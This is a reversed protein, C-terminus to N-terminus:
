LINPRNLILPTPPPNIHPPLVSVLVDGAMWLAAEERPVQRHWLSQCHSALSSAAIESNVCRCVWCAASACVLYSGRLLPALCQVQPDLFSGLVKFLTTDTRVSLMHCPKPSLFLLGTLDINSDLEESWQPMKLRGVTVPINCPPTSIKDVAGERVPEAMPLLILHKQAQLTSGGYLVGMLDWFCRLIPLM